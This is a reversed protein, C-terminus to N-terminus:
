REFEVVLVREKVRTVMGTFEQAEGDVLLQVKFDTSLTPVCQQFYNVEIRFRGNPAAGTKWFVNEVPSNTMNRECGANSDVDLEGGSDSSRVEYYIEDGSPDIVHLDLDNQGSWSLTIQVDGTGLEPTPLPSPTPITTPLPSPTPIPTSIPIPTPPIILSLWTPRTFYATLFLVLGLLFLWWYDCILCVPKEWWTENM